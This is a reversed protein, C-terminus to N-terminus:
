FSIKFQREDAPSIVARTEGSDTKIERIKTLESATKDVPKTLKNVPTGTTSCGLLIFNSLILFTIVGYSLNRM